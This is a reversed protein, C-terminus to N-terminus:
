AVKARSLLCSQSLKQQLTVIVVERLFELSDAFDPL